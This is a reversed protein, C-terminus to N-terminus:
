VHQTHDEQTESYVLIDDLYIICTVDVLATLAKNIYTQFMAPANALGFPMVMYEFHGYGTHFVTKWEDGEKIHIYHYADKLNFKM